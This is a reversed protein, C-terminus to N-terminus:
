LWAKFLLPALPVAQPARRPAAWLRALTKDRPPRSVICSRCTTACRLLAVTLVDRLALTTRRAAWTGAADPADRECRASCTGTGSARRPGLGHRMRRLHRMAGDRGAGATGGEERREAEDGEGKSVREGERGGGGGRSRGSRAPATGSRVLRHPGVRSHYELFAV